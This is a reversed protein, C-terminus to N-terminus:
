NVKFNNSSESDFRIHGATDLADALSIPAVPISWGYVVRRVGGNKM